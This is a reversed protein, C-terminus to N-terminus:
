ILYFKVEGADEDSLLGWAELADVVDDPSYDLEDALKEVLDGIRRIANPKM